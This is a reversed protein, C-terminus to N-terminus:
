EVGCGTDEEDDDELVVGAICIEGDDIVTEIATLQAGLCPGEVCEGTGLDFLAGHKGCQIRTGEGDLFEDREWDLNTGQHPCRNEYARINRGWRLILIPWSVVGGGEGRRALVFGRARRNPISEVPCIAFIPERM